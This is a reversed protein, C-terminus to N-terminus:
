RLVETKDYQKKQVEIRTACTLLIPHRVRVYEQSNKWGRLHSLHKLVDRCIAPSALIYKWWEFGNEQFWFIWSCGKLRSIFAQSPRTTHQAKCTWHKAVPTAALGM